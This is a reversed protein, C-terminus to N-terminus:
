RHGHVVLIQQHPRSSLEPTSPCDTDYEEADLVDDRPLDVTYDRGDESYGLALNADYTDRGGDGPPRLRRAECVSRDQPEGPAPLAPAAGVQAIRRVAELLQPGCDCRESGLVDGTFCESHIRVLPPVEPDASM